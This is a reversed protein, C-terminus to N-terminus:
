SLEAPSPLPDAPPGNEDPSPPEADTRPLSHIIRWLPDALWEIMKAPLYYCYPNTNHGTGSRAVLNAAFATHLWNCLTRLSPRPCGEAWRDRLQTRTLPEPADELVTRLIPWYEPFDSQTEEPVITYATGLADLAILLAPPTEEWRSGGLLQRRRDTPAGAAFPHLELDIDVFAPLAGSGRAAQGPAPQGKSPHHQLLVALDADTLRHLPELAQLMAEPSNESRLPLFRSLTDFAVLDIGDRKQMKLLHDILARFQDPTPRSRFPRFFFCVDRGFGLKDQRRRWVKRTEETVVVTRGPRVPLDLLPTGSQRHALLHSLLTTKGTKWLGTLLTVQGPGLLGAWIWDLPTDSPNPANGWCEAFM